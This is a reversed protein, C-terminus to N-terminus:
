RESRERRASATQGGRWAGLDTLVALVILLWGLANVEGAPGVSHTAFAFTLTTLPLFVFGLVPWLWHEYARSLYDGGFWWV